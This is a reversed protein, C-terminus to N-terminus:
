THCRRPIARAVRFPLGRAIPTDPQKAILPYHSAAPAILRLTRRRATVEAPLDEVPRLVASVAPDVASTQRSRGAMLLTPSSSRTSHGSWADWARQRDAVLPKVQRSNHNQRRPQSLRANRQERLKPLQGGGAGHLKKDAARTVGSRKLPLNLSFNRVADSPCAIAPPTGFRNWSHM